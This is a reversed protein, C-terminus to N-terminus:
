KDSMHRMDYPDFPGFLYPLVRRVFILDAFYVRSMFKQWFPKDLNGEEKITEEIKKRKKSKKM